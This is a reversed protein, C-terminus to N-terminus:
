EQRGRRGPVLVFAKPALGPAHQAHAPFPARHTESGAQVGQACHPGPFCSLARTAGQELAKGKVYFTLSPEPTGMHRGAVNAVYSVSLTVAARQLPDAM